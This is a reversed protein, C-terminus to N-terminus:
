ARSRRKLMRLRRAERRQYEQMWRARFKAVAAELAADRRSIDADSKMQAQMEAKAERMRAAAEAASARLATMRDASGEITRRARGDGTQKFRLRAEKIRQQLEVIRQRAREALEEAKRVREQLRRAADGMSQEVASAARKKRVVKRTTAKEDTAKEDTAKKTTAQRAPAKRTSAEMSAAKRAGAKKSTAKKTVRPGETLPELAMDAATTETKKAVM